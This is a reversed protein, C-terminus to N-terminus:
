NYRDSIKINNSISFVKSVTKNSKIGKVSIALEIIGDDSYLPLGAIIKKEGQRLYSCQHSSALIPNENDNFFRYAERKQVSGQQKWSTMVSLDSVDDDGNNYLEAYIRRDKILPSIFVDSKVKSATSGRNSSVSKDGVVIDGGASINGGAKIFRKKTSVKINLAGLLKEFLSLM